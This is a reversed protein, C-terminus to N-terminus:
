CIITALLGTVLAFEYLGYLWQAPFAPHEGSGQISMHLMKSACRVHSRPHLACGTKGAGESKLPALTGAFSRACRAALDYVCTAIMLGDRDAAVRGKGM